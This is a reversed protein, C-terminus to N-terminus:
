HLQWSSYLARFFIIAFTSASDKGMFLLWWGFFFISKRFNKGLLSLLLCNCSVTCRHLVMRPLHIHSGDVPEVAFIFGM